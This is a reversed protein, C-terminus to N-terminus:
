ETLRRLASSHASQARHLQTGLTELEGVLLAFNDHLNAARRAIEVANVNRREIRWLHSVTRLTALLTSPSVLSINKALAYTYLNGDARVAEIFAAEVPVFLLVFDLTRLDDIGSYNKGSLGDIHRRLSGLHEKLALQREFDDEAA